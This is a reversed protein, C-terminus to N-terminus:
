PAVVRYFRTPQTAASPDSFEMTGTSNTRVQVKTWQALDPSAELVCRAGPTACTVTAQFVGDAGRSALTVEPREPQPSQREEITLFQNAAVDTLEQVIGSPWEIRLVDVKAADGLGFHADLASLGAASTVASQIQRVQEVQKGQISAQVWVRAGIASRNSATGALRVLL